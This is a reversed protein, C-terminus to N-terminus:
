GHVPTQGSDRQMEGYVATKCVILLDSGEEVVLLDYRRMEGYGATKCVILFDSGGRCGVPEATISGAAIRPPSATNTAGGPNATGGESFCFFITFRIKKSFLRKVSVSFIRQVKLTAQSVERAHSM